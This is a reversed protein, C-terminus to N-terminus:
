YQDNNRKYTGLHIKHKVTSLHLSCVQTHVTYYPLTAWDMLAVHGECRRLISLISFLNYADYM